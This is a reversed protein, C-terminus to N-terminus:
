RKEIIKERNLIAEFVRVDTFFIIKNGSIFSYAFVIGGEDDLVARVDQNYLTISKFHNSYYKRNVGFLPGIDYLIAREWSQMNLFSADVNKTELIMFPENKDFNIVGASFEPKLNRLFQNPVRTDLSVMFEKAGVQHAYGKEDRKTFFVNKISGFPITSNEQVDKSLEYTDTGDLEVVKKYDYANSAILHAINTKEQDTEKKTLMFIIVAAISLIGLITLIISLIVMTMNKPNKISRLEQVERKKKEQIIMKALSTPKDDLAEVAVDRYTKIVRKVENKKKPIGGENLNFDQNNINEM